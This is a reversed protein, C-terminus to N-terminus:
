GQSADFHFSTWVAIDGFVKSYNFPAFLKFLNRIIKTGLGQTELFFLAMVSPNAIFM